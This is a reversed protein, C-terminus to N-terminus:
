NEIIKTYLKNLNKANQLFSKWPSTKTFSVNKMNFSQPHINDLEKWTFPMAIPAKPLPRISYPVISHQGYSNRLYDIFVKNKRKTKSIEITAQPHKITILEAFYRALSRVQDFELTPKIPAVVHFGKSGTTMIFPQIGHKELENKLLIAIEKLILENKITPDLDFVIRDPKHIAKFRSLLAHFSFSGQNVLYLLDKQRQLLCMENQGGSKKDVKATSLWGPFYDSTNKQFFSKHTIGEPYRQLAIPHDKILPLMLSSCSKYYAYLDGKSLNDKPFIVKEPHTLDKKENKHTAM